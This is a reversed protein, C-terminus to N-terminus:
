TGGDPDNIYIDLTCTLIAGDEPRQWNIEIQVKKSHNFLLNYWIAKRNMSEATYEFYSLYPPSPTELYSFAAEYDLRVAGLEGSYYAEFTPYEVLKEKEQRYFKPILQHEGTYTQGPSYSGGIKCNEGTLSFPTKSVAHFFLTIKSTETGRGLIIVYFLVNSNGEDAKIMTTRNKSKVYNGAYYIHDEYPLKWNNVYPFRLEKEGDNTSVARLMSPVIEDLPITGDPYQESTWVNDESDYATVVMGTFDLLEMDEYETKNPLTTVVIKEPLDTRPIPGSYTGGYTDDWSGDGSTTPIDSWSKGIVTMRADNQQIILSENAM